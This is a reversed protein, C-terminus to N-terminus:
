KETLNPAKITYKETTDRRHGVRADISFPNCVYTELGKNKNCISTGVAPKSSAVQHNCIL